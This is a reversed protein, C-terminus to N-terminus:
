SKKKNLLQICTYSNLSFVNGDLCIGLKLIHKLTPRVTRTKKKLDWNSCIKLIAQKDKFYSYICFWLSVLPIGLMASISM